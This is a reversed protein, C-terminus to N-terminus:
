LVLKLPRQPLRIGSSLQTPGRVGQQSVYGPVEGGAVLSAQTDVPDGAGVVCVDAALTLTEIKKKFGATRSHNYFKDGWLM